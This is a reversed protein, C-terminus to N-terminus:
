LSNLLDTIDADANPKKRKIIELVINSLYPYNGYSYYNYMYNSLESVIDNFKLKQIETDGAAVKRKDLDVLKKITGKLATNFVKYYEVDEKLLDLGNSKQTIQNLRNQANQIQIEDFKKSLLDKANFYKELASLIMKVEANNGVLQMDRQVSQKTSSNILDDFQKNKYVNVVNSLAENKGNEKEERAKQEGTRKVEQTEEKQASFQKKLLDISDNKVKLQADIIEKQSKYKELDSLENKLINITDKLSKIIAAMNNNNTAADKLQKKLNVIEEVKRDYMEQTIQSYATYVGCFLLVSVIIKKM